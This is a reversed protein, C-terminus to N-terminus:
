LVAGQMLRSSNYRLLCAHSTLDVLRADEERSLRATIFTGNREMIDDVRQWRRKRSSLLSKGLTLQGEACQMGYM